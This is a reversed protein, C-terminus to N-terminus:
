AKASGSAFLSPAPTVGSAGCLTAATSTGTSVMKPASEALSFEATRISRQSIMAIQERKLNLPQGRYSLELSLNGLDGEAIQGDKFFLRDFQNDQETADQDELKKLIRQIRYRVEFNPHDLNSQLMEMFQGATEPESLREEALERKQYSDGALNTILQRITEVKKGVPSESLIMRNLRVIEITEESSEGSDSVRTWKLTPTKVDVTIVTGSQLSIQFEEANLTNQVPFVQLCVLGLLMLATLRFRLRNAFDFLTSNTIPKERTKKNGNRCMLIVSLDM